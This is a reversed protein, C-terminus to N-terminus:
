SKRNTLAKPPPHSALITTRPKPTRKVNARPCCLWQSRHQRDRDQNGPLGPTSFITGDKSTALSVTRSSAGNRGARAEFSVSNLNLLTSADITIELIYTQGEGLGLAADPSLGDIPATFTHTGALNVSIGPIAAADNSTEFVTQDGSQQFDIDVIIAAESTTGM